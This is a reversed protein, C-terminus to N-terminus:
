THRMQLAAYVAVASNNAIGGSTVVGLGYAGTSPADFDSGDSGTLTSASPTNIAVTSGSTVTGYTFDVDDAAGAVTVPYLGFTFNIAPATANAAVQAVIRLKTTKGTVAYDAADLRLLDPILDISTIGGTGSTLMSDIVGGFSVHTGLLYTGAAADRSLIGKSVMLNRYVANNSAEGSTGITSLRLGSRGMLVNTGDPTKRYRISTDELRELRELISRLLREDM